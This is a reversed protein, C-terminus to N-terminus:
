NMRRRLEWVARLQAETEESVAPPLGSALSSIASDEAEDYRGLGILIAREQLAVSSDDPVAIAELEATWLADALRGRRVYSGRLNVLMRRVFGRVDVPAIHAPTLEGGGYSRVIAALDREGLEAWGNFPDLYRPAPGSRDAVVFHGPLGAGTFPLGVRDAVAVTLASLLIPLGRRRRFACHLFSNAPDDYEDRDGAFGADRLVEVVAAPTGGRVRTADALADVEALVGAVELGPEAEVGILANAEAVDPRPEELLRALRGRSAGSM